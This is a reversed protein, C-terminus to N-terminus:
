DGSRDVKNWTVLKSMPINFVDYPHRSDEVKLGDPNIEVVYVMRPVVTTTKSLYDGVSYTVVEKTAM